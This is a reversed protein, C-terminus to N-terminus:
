AQERAAPQGRDGGGPRAVLGAASSRFPMSALIGQAALRGATARRRELEAEEGDNLGGSHFLLAAAGGMWAVWPLFRALWGAGAWGRGWCRGGWWCWSRWRRRLRLQGRGSRAGGRGDELDRQRDQVRGPASRAWWCCSRRRGATRAKDLEIFQDVLWSLPPGLRHRASDASRHRRARDAIEDSHDDFWSGISSRGSRACCRARSRSASIRSRRSRAARGHVPARGRRGQGARQAPVDGPVAAHVQRLRRRAHGAAPERRHRANGYQSALWTPKKALEAGLDSLIDVTDRLEGNANRTQVGLTALYGEGAPNNRLFKALNEVAGFASETSVGLNRAAFDFAKLSSAAAGTRKSVFYLNELKSALASVGVSVTLASASITTVL